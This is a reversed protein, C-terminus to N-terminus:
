VIIINQVLLRKTKLCKEHQYPVFCGIWTDSTLNKHIGANSSRKMLMRKKAASKRSPFPQNPSWLISSRMRYLRNLKNEKWNHEYQISKYKKNWQTIIDPTEDERIPEKKGTLMHIHHFRRVHTVVNQGVTEVMKFFAPKPDVQSWQARLWDNNKGTDFGPVVQFYTMPKTYLKLEKM